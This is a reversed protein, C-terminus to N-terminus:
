KRGKRTNWLEVAEKKTRCNVTFACIRCSNIQHCGANYCGRSGGVEAKGGCFPCPKLETKKAM